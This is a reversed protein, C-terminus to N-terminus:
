LKLDSKGFKERVKKRRETKKVNLEMVVKETNQEM